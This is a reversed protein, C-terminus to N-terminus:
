EEKGKKKSSVTKLKAKSVDKILEKEPIVDCNKKCKPNECENCEEDLQKDEELCEDDCAPHPDKGHECCKPMTRRLENVTFDIAQKVDLLTELMDPPMTGTKEVEVLTDHMEGFLSKLGGVYMRARLPHNVKEAM